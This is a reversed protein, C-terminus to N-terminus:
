SKAKTKRGMKTTVIIVGNAGEMGYIAADPGKLVRVTDIDEPNIGTLAGGAGPRFPAGNLIYLPDANGGVYSTAGRIQLAIEGGSTRTVVLGPVKRQLLVEVPVNANRLEDSTVAPSPEPQSRGSPPACGLVGHVLVVFAFSVPLSASRM